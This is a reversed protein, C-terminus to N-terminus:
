TTTLTVTQGALAHSGASASLMNDDSSVTFNLTVDSIRENVFTGPFELPKPFAPLCNLRFTGTDGTITVLIGSSSSVASQITGVLTEFVSKSVQAIQVSLPLGRKQNDLTQVYPTGDLAVFQSGTFNFLLSELGRVETRCPSGGAAGTDTLYTGGITITNYRAM